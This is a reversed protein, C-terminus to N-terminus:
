RAAPLPRAAFVAAKSGPSLDLGRLLGTGGRSRHAGLLDYRGGGRAAAVIGAHGLLKGGKWYWYQVVDGPQLATADAVERGQGSAALAAAVGRVRPDGRAFLERYRPFDVKVYAAIPEDLAFGAQGLVALLWTVCDYRGPGAGYRGEVRRALALLDAGALRAGGAAARASDARAGARRMALADVLLQRDSALWAREDADGRREVCGAYAAALAELSDAPAALAARLLAGCPGAAFRAQAEARAAAPLVASLASGALLGAVVVAASRRSRRAASPRSTAPPWSKAPPWSV